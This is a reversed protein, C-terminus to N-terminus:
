GTCLQDSLYNGDVLMPRVVIITGCEQEFQVRNPKKHFNRTQNLRQKSPLNKIHRTPGQLIPFNRLRYDCACTMPTKFKCMHGKTHKWLTPSSRSTAMGSTSHACSSTISREPQMSISSERSKTGACNKEDM